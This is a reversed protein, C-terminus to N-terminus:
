LACFANLAAEQTHAQGPTGGILHNENNAEVVQKAGNDSTIHFSFYGPVAGNHYWAPRGCPTDIRMLGLGYHAGTGTPVTTKLETQQAPPLLTGDVLAREFTALDDLTSVIAGATQTAQVSTVTMDLIFPGALYYGRLYNGYLNNDTTPLSTDTLGLRDFIRTKMEVAPENGTVAKIIMGALVYNTNTYEWKEGPQANPPRKRLAGDVLQQSTWDPNVTYGDINMTYDPLNSTQNLLQRITIKSGDHGNAKVANPLWTAVTDDLSLLGDAELLLVTAATFSKSNSGIRFKAKPDAPVRTGRDGVGAQVYQTQAGDRVMGIIGPYGDAVGRDAGAKLIVAAEPVAATAPSLGASLGLGCAVAVISLRRFKM